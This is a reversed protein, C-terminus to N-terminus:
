LWGRKRFYALMGGLMGVMLLVVLWFATLDGEGPVEVNMGFVSAVLTLPLM